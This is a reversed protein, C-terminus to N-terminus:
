AGPLVRQPQPSPPRPLSIAMVSLGRLTITITGEMPVHSASNPTENHPKNLLKQAVSHGYLDRSM